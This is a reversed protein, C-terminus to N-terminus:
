HAFSHAAPEVAVFRSAAAFAAVAVQWYRVVVALAPSKAAPCGGLRYLHAYDTTQLHMATIDAAHGHATIPAAVVFHRPAPAIVAVFCHMALMVVAVVALAVRNAFDCDLAAALQLATLAADGANRGAAFPNSFQQAVTSVIPLVFHPTAGRRPDAAAVLQRALGIAASRLPKAAAITAAVVSASAVALSQYAAIAAGVTTVAFRSVALPGAISEHRFVRASVIAAVSLEACDDLAKALQLSLLHM